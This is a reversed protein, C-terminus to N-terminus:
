RYSRDDDQGGGAPALRRGHADRPDSLPTVLRRTIVGFAAAVAANVAAIQACSWGIVGFAALLNFLAFLAVQLIVPERKFIM